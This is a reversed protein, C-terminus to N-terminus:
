KQLDNDNGLDKCGKPGSKLSFINQTVIGKLSCPVLNDPNFIKNLTKKINVFPFINIIRAIAVTRQMLKLYPRSNIIYSFSDMNNVYAREPNQIHNWYVLTFIHFLHWANNLNQHMYKMTIAFLLLMRYQMMTVIVCIFSFVCMYWISFIGIGVRLAHIYKIWM